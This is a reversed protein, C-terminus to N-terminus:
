VGWYLCRRSRRPPRVAAPAGPLRRLAQSPLPELLPSGGPSAAM